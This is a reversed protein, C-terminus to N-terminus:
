CVVNSPRQEAAMEVRDDNDRSRRRSQSSKETLLLNDCKFLSAAWLQTKKFFLVNNVQSM